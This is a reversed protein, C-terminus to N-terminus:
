PIMQQEQTLRKGIVVHILNRIPFKGEEWRPLPFYDRLRGHHIADHRSCTKKRNGELGRIATLPNTAMAKPYTARLAQGPQAPVQPGNLEMTSPLRVYYLVVDSIRM